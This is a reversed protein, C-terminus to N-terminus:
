RTSSELEEIKTNKVLVAENLDKLNISAKESPIGKEQCLACNTCKKERIVATLEKTKRQITEENFRQNLKFQASM